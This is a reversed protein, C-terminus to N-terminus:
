YYIKFMYNIKSVEIDPYCRGLRFALQELGSNREGLVVIRKIAGDDIGSGFATSSSSSHVVANKIENKNNNVNNKFNLLGHYSFDQGLPKNRNQQIYFFVLFCLAFITLTIAISNLTTKIRELRDLNKYAESIAANKLTKNNRPQQNQNDENASDRILSELEEDSDSGNWEEDNEEHKENNENDKSM